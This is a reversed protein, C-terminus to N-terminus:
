AVPEGRFEERFGKALWQFVLWLCLPTLVVSGLGLAINVMGVVWGKDNKPLALVAIDGACFFAGVAMGGAEIVTFVYDPLQSYIDPGIWVPWVEARHVRMWLAFLFVGLNLASSLVCYLVYVAWVRRVRSSQAMM